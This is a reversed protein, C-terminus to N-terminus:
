PVPMAWTLSRAPEQYIAPRQNPIPQALVPTDEWAATALPAVGAAGIALVMMVLGILAFGLGAGIARWLMASCSWRRAAARRATHLYSYRAQRFLGYAPHAFQAVTM